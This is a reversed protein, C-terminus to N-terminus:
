QGQLNKSYHSNRAEKLCLRCLIIIGLATVVLSLIATIYDTSIATATAEEISEAEGSRLLMWSGFVAISNNLAHVLIPVWVSGTWWILYGFYAGLLIRPIFGYFQFHMLSFIVATLWVSLHRKMRTSFFFNQMAGRFFLEESLGTLLGIILISLLLDPITDGGLLSAIAENANGELSQLTEELGNMSDPLSISENWQVILNMAPMSTVLILCALLTPRLKPKFDLRLFTAPLRTVVMAAIIAPAIFVVLDQLITAIRLMSTSMEGDPACLAVIISIVGLLGFMLGILVGIGLGPNRVLPLPKGPYQSPTLPPLTM